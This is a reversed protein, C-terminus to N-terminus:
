AIRLLAIGLQSASTQAGASTGAAFNISTRTATATNM